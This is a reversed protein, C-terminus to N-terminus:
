IQAANVGNLLVKDPRGPRLETITYRQPAFPKGATLNALSGGDFKWRYTIEPKADGDTDINLDYRGNTDFQYKEETFHQAQLPNYDTVFTVTDQADPSVFAYLDTGDLKQNAITLPTDVHSAAEGRHEAPGALLGSALVLGGAGVMLTTKM